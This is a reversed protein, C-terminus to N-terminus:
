SAQNRGVRLGASLRDIVQARALARAARDRGAQWEATQRDLQAQLLRAQGDAWGQYRARALADPVPDLGSADPTQALRDLGAQTAVRARALEAIDALARDRLLAAIPALATLRPDRATM